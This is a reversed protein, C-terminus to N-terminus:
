DEESCEPCKRIWNDEDETVTWELDRIHAIFEDIKAFPGGTFEDGCDDCEATFEGNDDEHIM